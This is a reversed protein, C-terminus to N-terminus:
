SLKVVMWYIYLGGFVPQYVDFESNGFHNTDSRHQAGETSGYMIFWSSDHHIMIFWSDHHIMIFWPSDHHIMFWSSDHHIVTFWSDHHIMFWSSDHHIMTFWSDHHIMTFWPSDHHIMFWSSDHHIMTFWPSDHHITSGKCTVNPAILVWTRGIKRLWFQPWFGWPFSDLGTPNWPIGTWMGKM